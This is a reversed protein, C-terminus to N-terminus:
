RTTRTGGTSTGGAGMTGMTGTSGTGTATGTGTGTTTSPSTSTSATEAVARLRTDCQVRRVRNESVWEVTMRLSYLQEIGLPELVAQWRWQMGSHPDNIVGSLNPNSILSQIGIQDLLVMQRDLMDWAKEYEQHIRLASLSRAGLACITVTATALLGAAVVVEILSFGKHRRNSMM